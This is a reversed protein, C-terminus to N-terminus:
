RDARVGEKLEIVYFGSKGCAFWIHGTDPVYRAHGGCADGPKFYGVEVPEAPNSLDVIRMGAWMFPFLGLRTNDASDVDNYHLAATGPDGVIGGTAKENASREPCNEPKNMALRFEGAVFPKTEDAINVFKPWAGPCAGLEGGGVLYPVGNIRAPMVSHWGGHEATGVLRMKPNPRGEVIDSNDLIYVGGADPGLSAASPPSSPVGHNLDDGGSGLVGAYIRTEDDSVSIEHTAFEFSSGDARTVSFKGLYRPEALNTIDLVHVGGKGTFPEIHTAYVRKGNPSVTIAHVQEPWQYEATLTPNACDSADYISVWRADEAPKAGGEYTGAVLVKRDPTSVADMAEGSYLSGRDRLVRVAKPATPDSVDIVAVGFTSPDATVGWGLFNPSSSSIYACEDVWSLQINSDRSWVDSHGVLNVGSSYPQALIDGPKDAAMSEGQKGPEPRDATVATVPTAASASAADAGFPLAAGVCFTLAAAALRSFNSRCPAVSPLQTNVIDIM